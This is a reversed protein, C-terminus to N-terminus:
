STESTPSGLVLISSILNIHGMFWIIFLTVLSVFLKKKLYVYKNTEYLAEFNFNMLMMAFLTEMSAVLNYYDENNKGFVAYGFMAFAWFIIGFFLM